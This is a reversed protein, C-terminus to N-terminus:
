KLIMYDIVKCNEKAVYILMSGGGKALPNESNKSNHYYIIYLGIEEKTRRVLGEYNKAKKRAFQDAIEEACKHNQCQTCVKNIKSTQCKMLSLTLAFILLKNM